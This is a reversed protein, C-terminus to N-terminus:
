EQIFRNDRGIKLTDIATFYDILVNRLKYDLDLVGENEQFFYMQDGGHYLYDNTAVQYVTDIDLDKGNITLTKISNSPDLVLQFEKSLPHARKKSALFEALKKVQSGKLSVVVVENEFPMISYATRTTVPGKPLISRIGGHNLLVFDINNKTRKYYIPNAHAMVADAMMNGIATNFEGDTKSYSEPSYSLVTSLSSDVHRRYPDIFDNIESVDSLSENIEIRDARIESIEAKNNKCNTLGFLTMLALISIRKM